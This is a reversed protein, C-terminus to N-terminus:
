RGRSFSRCFFKAGINECIEKAKEIEETYHQVKVIRTEEEREQELTDINAQMKRSIEMAEEIKKFMEKMEDNM